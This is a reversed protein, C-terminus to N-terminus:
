KAGPMISLLKRLNESQIQVDLRGDDDLKENEELVRQTQEKWSNYADQSISKVFNGVLDKQNLPVTMKLYQNIETSVDASSSIKAMFEEAQQVNIKRDTGQILFEPQGSQVAAFQEGISQQLALLPAAGKMLIDKEQPNITEQLVKSLDTVLSQLQQATVKESTVPLSKVASLFNKYAQQQVQSANKLNVFLPQDLQNLKEFIDNVFIAEPKAFYYVGNFEYVNSGPDINTKTNTTGILFEKIVSRQPKGPVISSNILTALAEQFIPWETDFKKFLPVDAPEIDYGLQKLNSSLSARVDLGNLLRSTLKERLDKYLNQEDMLSPALGNRINTLYSLKPNFRATLYEGAKLREIGLGYIDFNKGADEEADEISLSFQIDNVPLGISTVVDVGNKDKVYNILAQDECGKVTEQGTAGIVQKQLKEFEYLKIEKNTGVAVCYYDPLFLIESMLTFFKEAVGIYEKQKFGSNTVLDANLSRVGEASFGDLYTRQEGVFDHLYARWAMYIEVMGVMYSIRLQQFNIVRNRDLKQGYLVLFDRYQNFYYDLADKPSYGYDHRQCLPDIKLKDVHEDTCYKYPNSNSFRDQNELSLEPNLQAFTGLMDVQRDRTGKAEVSNAYGYAVAAIDYAAPMALFPADYPSYDMISSGAPLFREDPYFEYIEPFQGRPYVAELRGMSTFSNAKDSSAFFNHRLGFPSHGMEHAVVSAVRKPLLKKLCSNLVINERTSDIQLQGKMKEAFTIIEPCFHEVELSVYNFLPRNNLIERSFGVDKAIGTKIKIYDRIDASAGNIIPGIYVNVTGSIVEGTNPDSVTPGVGLLGSGGINDIINIINVDLEGLEADGDLIKLRSKAGSLEFVRNWHKVTQRAIKRYDVDLRNPDQVLEEITPTLTSFKFYVDKTPNVRSVFTNKEIDAERHDEYDALKYKQTPFYGFKKRDYEFYTRTQYNREKARLFSYKTKEGSSTQILTFSFSDPKIVLSDIKIGKFVGELFAANQEKGVLVSTQAFHFKGWERVNDNRYTHIEESFGDEDGSPTVRYDQWDVRINIVDDAQDENFKTREDRVVNIGRLYNNIKAFKIKTALKRLSADVTGDVYGIKQEEGPKTSVISSAYYWEGETFYEAPLVDLKLVRDFYRFAKLNIYVYKAKSYDVPDVGFKNKVNTDRDDQNKIKKVNFYAAEYGGLPVLFREGSKKAYPLEYHSLQEVSVSKYLFLFKPTFKYVIPYSTNPAGFLDIKSANPKLLPSDTEFKVIKPFAIKHDILNTEIELRQAESVASNDLATTTKISHNWSKIEEVPILDELNAGQADLDDRKKVCGSLASALFASVMLMRIMKTKSYM